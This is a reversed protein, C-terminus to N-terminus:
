KKMLSYEILSRARFGQIYTLGPHRILVSSITNLSTKGELLFPIVANLSIMAVSPLSNQVVARVREDRDILEGLWPMTKKIQKYSLLMALADIPVIWFLFLMTISALVILERFRISRPAHTMNTWVIDRPEPAIHCHVDFPSSAQATQVAVQAFSMKEFTVFAAHTAKFKGQLRKNKVLEDAVKFKQELYDLADVKPKFWDPRMTPRPRHPVVLKPPVSSEVGDVDVLPAVVNDMPDSAQVTSPNGVYDTWAKELKLLADTRADLLEKLSGVERCVSVSEVPLNMAEFYEALAREGRLYPPLETVMVTRAAISHVLELSFLQRTRIFRRYNKYLFYLTLVTFLYTFLLHVTLYSNADSILDLWGPDTTTRNGKPTDIFTFCPWDDDDDDREL